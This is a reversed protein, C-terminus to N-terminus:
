CSVERWRGSQVDLMWADSLGKGGSAYGGTVFLQPHDGGYGLCVAAHSSRGVPCPEGEHHDLKTWHQMSIVCRSSLHEGRMCCPHTGRHWQGQPAM